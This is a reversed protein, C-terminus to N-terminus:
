SRAFFQILTTVLTAIAVALTIWGALILRKTQRDARRRSLEEFGFRVRPNVIAPLDFKGMENIDAIIEEDTMAGLKEYTFDKQILLGM